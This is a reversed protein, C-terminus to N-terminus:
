QSDGFIDQSSAAEPAFVRMVAKISANDSLVLMKDGGMLQTGGRPIITQGGREISIILSDRPMKTDLILQGCMASEPSISFEYIAANGGSISAVLYAAATDAEQEIVRSLLESDCLVFDVGLRELVTANSPNNARAITKKVGFNDKALQCSILNDEDRGTVAIYVDAKACAAIELIRPETADGCIIPLDLLTSMERSRDGGIEILRVDHGRARMTKALYYGLSGAGAIVIRM